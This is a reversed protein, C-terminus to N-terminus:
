DPVNEYVIFKLEDTLLMVINKVPLSVPSLKVNVVLVPLGDINVLEDQPLTIDPLWIVETPEFVPPLKKICFLILKM